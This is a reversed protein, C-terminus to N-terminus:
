AGQRRIGFAKRVHRIANELDLFERKLNRRHMQRLQYCAESKIHARRFRGTRMILGPGLADVKDIKNRQAPPASRVHHTELCVAPLGLKLLEPHLWPWLSAAM